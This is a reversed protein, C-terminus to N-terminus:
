FTPSETAGDQHCVLSFFYPQTCLFNGLYLNAVSIALTFPHFSNLNKSFYPFLFKCVCCVGYGEACSGSATGERTQCEADTYCTGNQFDFSLCRQVYLKLIYFM